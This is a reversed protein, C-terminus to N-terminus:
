EHKKVVPIQEPSIIKGLYQNYSNPFHGIDIVQYGNKYLDVSLVTATQGIALLFLVEKEYKLCEKLIEKYEEYANQPSVKIENKLRINDFLRSDIDFRGNKGYVFVVKKNDWIKKVHDVTTEYFVDSRSIFSNGYVKQSLQPSIKKFNRIWYYEWFSLSGCINKTNNYKSNFPPICVMFKKNSEANLIKKLKKSLDESYSQFLSNNRELCIDFEGDGYRTISGNNEIIWEITEYISLIKPYKQSYIELNNKNKKTDYRYKNITKIKKQLIDIMNQNLLYKVIKKIRKSM